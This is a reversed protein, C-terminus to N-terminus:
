IKWYFSIIDQIYRKTSEKYGGNRTVAGYGEAYSALALPVQQPNGEWRDLMLRVYRTTGYLNEDIDFSNEVNLSKATSPILQGLGQAGTPSVAFPNFSSERCVLAAVLKPNVNYQEGYKVMSTAMQHADWYSVKKSFSQIYERIRGYLDEGDVAMYSPDPLTTIDVSSNVPPSGSPPGGGISAGFITVVFLLIIVAATGDM